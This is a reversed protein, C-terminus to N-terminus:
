NPKWTVTFATGANSLQGPAMMVTGSLDTTEVGFDNRSTIPSGDGSSGANAGSFEVNGFDALSGSTCISSCLGLNEVVWEASLRSPTVTPDPIPKTFSWGQTQDILDFNWEDNAFTVSANISDGPSVSYQASALSVLRGGNVDADGSMEFWAGYTPTTGNCDTLTGDQEVTSSGWGDIGVWEVAQSNGTATCSVTPVTWQGEVSNFIGGTDVYGSWASTTDLETLQAADTVASGSANSFTARYEDGSVAPTTVVAYTTSSAGSISTWTSGGDTSVQWEVAPMPSGTADATFDAQAHFPIAQNAPQETITPAAPPAWQAFLTASSTFSFTSGNAFETGTGNAMTNWGVWVYSARTFTNVSLTTPSSSVQPPMSGEGGNPAFNVTFAPSSQSQVASSPDDHPLREIGNHANAAPPVNATVDVWRANLSKSYTADTALVASAVNPTSQKPSGSHWLNSTISVPVALGVFIAVLAVLVRRERRRFAHQKTADVQFDTSFAPRDSPGLRSRKM